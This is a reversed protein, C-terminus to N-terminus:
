LKIAKINAFVDIENSIVGSMSGNLGFDDMNVTAHLKILLNDKSIELNDIKFVLKKSIDKISVNAEIYGKQINISSFNITPYKLANFYDEEKLHTDRKEDETNITGVSVVGLVDRLQDNDDTKITGSFNEFGGEVSVFLFKSAEFTINSNKTDVKYTSAFLSTAFFITFLIKKM